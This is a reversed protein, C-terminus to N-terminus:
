SHCHCSVGHIREANKAIFSVDLAKFFELVVSVNRASLLSYTQDLKMHSLFKCTVKMSASSIYKKKKIYVAAHVRELDLIRAAAMWIRMRVSNTSTPHHMKM